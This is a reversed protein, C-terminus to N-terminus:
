RRLQAEINKRCGNKLWDAKILECVKINKNNTAVGFYCYDKDSSPLYGWCQVTSKCDNQVGVFGGVYKICRSSIFYCLIGGIIVLLAVIILLRHIVRKKMNYNILASPKTKEM